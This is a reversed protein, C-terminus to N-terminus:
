PPNLDVQLFDSIDAAVQLSVSPPLILFSNDFEEVFGFFHGLPDVGLHSNTSGFFAPYIHAIHLHEDLDEVAEHVSSLM